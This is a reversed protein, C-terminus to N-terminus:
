HYMEIVNQRFIAVLDMETAYYIFIIVENILENCREIMLVRGLLKM